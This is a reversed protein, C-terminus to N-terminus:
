AGWALGRRTISKSRRMGESREGVEAPHMELSGGGGELGSSCKGSERRGVIKIVMAEVVEWKSEKKVRKTRESNM